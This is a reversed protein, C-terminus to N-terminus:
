DEGPQPPIWVAYKTYGDAGCRRARTLQDSAVKKSRVPESTLVVLNRTFTSYLNSWSLHANLGCRKLAVIITQAKREIQRSAPTVGMKDDDWADGDPYSAYINWYGAQRGIQGVPEYIPEATVKTSALWLSFAFRLLASKWNFRM